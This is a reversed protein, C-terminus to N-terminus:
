LVSGKRIKCTELEVKLSPVPKCHGCWGGCKASVRLGGDNQYDHIQLSKIESDLRWSVDKRLKIGTETLDLKFSGTLLFSIFDVDNSSYLM